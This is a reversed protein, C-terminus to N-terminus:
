RSYLKGLTTNEYLSRGRAGQSGEKKGSLAGKFKKLVYFNNKWRRVVEKKRIKITKRICEGM